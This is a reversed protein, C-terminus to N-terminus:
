SNFIGSLIRNKNNIDYDKSKLINNEAMKKSLEKNNYLYLVKQTLREVYDKDLIYRPKKPFLFYPLEPLPYYIKPSKIKFGNIGDQIPEANELLDSTIIPLGYSMAELITLAYGIYAPFLFLDSKLFLEEFEENSLPNEYIEVNKNKLLSKEYEPIKCRIILKIEDSIKSLKLFTHIVETGGRSYFDEEMNTTGTFLINFGNHNIKKVNKPITIVNNSVFLKNKLKKSKFNALFMKKGTISYPLIAKCNDKELILEINKKYHKFTKINYGFFVTPNEIDVIWYKEGYYLIGNICYIIDPNLKDIRETLKKEQYKKYYYYFFPINRKIEFLYNIIKSYIKKNNSNNGFLKIEKGDLNIYKFGNPPNLLFNKWVKHINQNNNITFLIIKKNM